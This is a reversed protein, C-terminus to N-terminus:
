TNQLCTQDTHRLLLIQNRRKWLMQGLFVVVASGIAVVWVHDVLARRLADDVSRRGTGPGRPGDVRVQLLLLLLAMTLLQLRTVMVVLM